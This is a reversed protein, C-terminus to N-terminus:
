VQKKKPATLDFSRKILESLVETPTNEVEAKIWHKKNMHWAPTVSPYQERVVAGIDPECKLNIYLKKELYFILAFWKDNSKHRMVVTDKYKDQGFPYTEAADQSILCLKILEDKKM